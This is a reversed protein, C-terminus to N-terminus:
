SAVSFAPKWYARIWEDVDALSVFYSVRQKSPDNTTRGRTTPKEYAKLEHRKIAGLLVSRDIGVYYKAAHAYPMWERRVTMVRSADPDEKSM